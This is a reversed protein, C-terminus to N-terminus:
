SLEQSEKKHLHGGPLSFSGGRPRPLGIVSGSEYKLAGLLSIILVNVGSVNKQLPIHNKIDCLIILEAPFRLPPVSM